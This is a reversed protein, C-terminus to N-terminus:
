LVVGIVLVIAEYQVENQHNSSLPTTPTAYGSPSPRRARATRQALYMVGISGIDAGHRPRHRVRRVNNDGARPARPRGFLLPRNQRFRLVSRRRNRGHRPAM